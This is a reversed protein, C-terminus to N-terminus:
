GVVGLKYLIGLVLSALTILGLAGQVFYIHKKVYDVDKTMKQDYMRILDENQETRYMHDKLDDKIAVIDTQMSAIDKSIELLLSDREKNDM